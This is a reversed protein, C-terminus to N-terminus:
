AKFGLEHDAHRAGPMRCSTSPARSIWGEGWFKTSKNGGRLWSWSSLFGSDRFELLGYVAMSTKSAARCRKM